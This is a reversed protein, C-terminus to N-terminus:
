RSGCMSFVSSRAALAGDHEGGDLAVDVVDALVEDVDDQGVVAVGDDVEADLLRDRAIRSAASSCSASTMPMDPRSTFDVTIMFSFRSSSFERPMAAASAPSGRRRPASGRGVDLLVEGLDVLALDAVGAVRELPQPQHVGEHGDLAPTGPASAARLQALPLTRSRAAVRGALGRPRPQRGAGVDRDVVRHRRRREPAGADDLADRQGVVGLQRSSRAVNM